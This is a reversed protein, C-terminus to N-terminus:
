QGTLTIKVRKPLLCQLFAGILGEISGLLLYAIGNFTNGDVTYM